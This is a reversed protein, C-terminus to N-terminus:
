SGLLKFLLGLTLGIYLGAAVIAAWVFSLPVTENILLTRLDVLDEEELQLGAVGSTLWYKTKFKEEGFEHRTLSVRGSTETIINDPVM